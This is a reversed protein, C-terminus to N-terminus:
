PMGGGSWNSEKEAIRNILVNFITSVPVKGGFFWRGDAEACIDFLQTVYKSDIELQKLLADALKKAVDLGEQAEEACRQWEKALRQSELLESALRTNRSDAEDLDDGATQLQRELERNSAVADALAEQCEGLRQAVEEFQREAELVVRECASHDELGESM